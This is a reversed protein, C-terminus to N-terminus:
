FADPKYKNFLEVWLQRKDVNNFVAHAVALIKLVIQRQSKFVWTDNTTVIFSSLRKTAVPRDTYPLRVEFCDSAALASLVKFDNKTNVEYNIIPIDYLARKDLSPSFFDMFWGSWPALESVWVSKGIGQPGELVLFKHNPRYYFSNVVGELWEDLVNIDQGDQLILSRKLLDINGTTEKIPHAYLENLLIDRQEM